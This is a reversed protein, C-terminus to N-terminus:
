HAVIAIDKRKDNEGTSGDCLGCAACTTRAGAEKSAPCLIEGKGLDRVDGIIRFTRFGQAKAQTREELSHVSAMTLRAFDSAMPLRWQHTYGTDKRTKPLAHWVHAPVAAPDGYSGRRVKRGAIASTAVDVPAVPLDRNAVWTSRPAQFVKVYCPRDSVSRDWASPRLPCAGCVSSDEGTKTAVNPKVDHRMIFTQLMDGTKTNKSSDDLGTLIVVIRKGDILSPGDYLKLANGNRSHYHTTKM